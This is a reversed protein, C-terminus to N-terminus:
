DARPFPPLDAAVESPQVHALIEDFVAQFKPGHLPTNPGHRHNEALHALEHLVIWSWGMAKSGQMTVAPCDYFDIRHSHTWAAGCQGPMQRDHYRVVGVRVHHGVAEEVKPKAVQVAQQFWAQKPSSACGAVMVALAAAAIYQTASM